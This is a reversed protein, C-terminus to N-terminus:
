FLVQEAPHECVNPGEMPCQGADYFALPMPTGPAPAANKNGDAYLPWDLRSFATSGPIILVGIIEEEKRKQVTKFV